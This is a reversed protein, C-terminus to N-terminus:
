DGDRAMASNARCGGATETRAAAPRRSVRVRRQVAIAVARGAVVHIGTDGDNGQPGQPGQPGILGAPGTPGVPGQIGQPGQAPVDLTVEIDAM